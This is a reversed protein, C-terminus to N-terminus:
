PKVMLVKGKLTCAVGNAKMMEIVASLPLQKSLRGGFKENTLKGQFEIDVDYWRSVQRMISGLDAQDFEFWGNKWAMVKEIDINKSVSLEDSLFVSQQGPKITVAQRDAAVSQVRVSGELLTTKIAEEDPYSNINFHTGLVEVVQKKTKVKFPQSPRHAVEFYGEGDLEVVREAASFVVPYRLSTSSNLWIRTGDELQLQYQNGRATTITNYVAEGNGKEKSSSYTLLGKLNIIQIGGNHTINGTTSDLLIQTGDALQLVAADHGPPIDKIVQGAVSERDPPVQKSQNFFLFYAGIGISLVISAAVAVRRWSFLRRIVPGQIERDIAQYIRQKIAQEEEESLATMDGAELRQYYEELVRSEAASARGELYKDILALFRNKEM